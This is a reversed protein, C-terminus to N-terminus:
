KKNNSCDPCVNAAYWNGPTYTKGCKDCIKGNPFAPSFFGQELAAMRASHVSYGSYGRLGLEAVPGVSVNSVLPSSANAQLIQIQSSLEDIKKNKKSIESKLSEKGAADVKSLELQKAIEQKENNEKQRENEKEEILKYMEEIQQVGPIIDNWEQTANAIDKELLSLLNSLEVSPADNTARNSINRIKYRALSLNRIASQGKKIILTNGTFTKYADYLFGGAFASALTAAINLLLAYSTDSVTNASYLAVFTLIVPLIVIPKLMLDRTLRWDNKLSNEDQGIKISPRLTKNDM